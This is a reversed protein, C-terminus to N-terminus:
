SEKEKRLQEELEKCRVTLAELRRRLETTCGHSYTLRDTEFGCVVCMMKPSEM